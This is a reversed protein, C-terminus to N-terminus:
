SGAAITLTVTRTDSAVIGAAVTASLTYTITNGSGDAVQTIGTVLDEATTSLTMDGASSGVTPAVLNIELSVNAPMNSDIAGTIKRNTNNTTIAYTTTADTDDDPESGATATDVCLAAPDGSVSIEDISSVSFSVTQTDSSAAILLNTLALLFVFTLSIIGLKSM